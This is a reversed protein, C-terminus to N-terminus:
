FFIIYEYTILNRNKLVSKKEYFKFLVQDVSDIFIYLTM